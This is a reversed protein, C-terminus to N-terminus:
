TVLVGDLDTPSEGALRQPQTVAGPDAKKEDSGLAEDHALGTGVSQGNACGPVDVVRGGGDVGILVDAACRQPLDHAAGRRPHKAM